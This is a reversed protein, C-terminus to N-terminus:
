HFYANGAIGCVAAAANHAGLESDFQRLAAM